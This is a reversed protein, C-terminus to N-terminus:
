TLYTQRITAREVREVAMIRWERASQGVRPDQHVDEGVITIETRPRAGRQIISGSRMLRVLRECIEREHPSWDEGLRERKRADAIM